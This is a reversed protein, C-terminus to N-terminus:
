HKLPASGATEVGEQFRIRERDKVMQDHIDQAKHMFKEALASDQAVGDGKKYMVSLNHCAPM